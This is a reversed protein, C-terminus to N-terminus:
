ETINPLAIRHDTQELWSRTEPKFKNEIARYFPEPITVHPKGLDVRGNSAQREGIVLVGDPATALQVVCREKILDRDNLYDKTEAPLEVLGVPQNRMMDFFTDLADKNVEDQENVIRENATVGAASAAIDAKMYPTQMATTDDYEDSSGTDDDQESQAQDAQANTQEVEAASQDFQLAEYGAKTTELSLTTIRQAILLQEYFCRQYEAYIGKSEETITKAVDGAPLESRAIETIYRNSLAIRKELAQKTAEMKQLAEEVVATLPDTAELSSQIQQLQEIAAQQKVLREQFDDQETQHIEIYKKREDDPSLNDPILGASERTPQLSGLILASVSGLNVKRKENLQATDVNETPPAIPIIEVATEQPLADGSTETVGDQNFQKAQEILDDLVKLVAQKLKLTNMPEGFLKELLENAHRLNPETAKTRQDFMTQLHQEVEVSQEKGLRVNMLANMVTGFRESQSTERQERAEAKPETHTEIQNTSLAKELAQLREITLAISRDEHQLAERCENRANRVTENEQALTETATEIEGWAEGLAQETPDSELRNHLEHILGRVSELTDPTRKPTQELTEQSQELKREPREAPPPQNAM